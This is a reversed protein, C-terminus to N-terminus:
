QLSAIARERDPEIHFLQDLGTIHIAEAVMADLSCLCLSRESDACRKKIRILMGLGASAVFDVLHFDLVIHKVDVGTVKDLIEKQLRQLNGDDLIRPQEIIVVGVGDQEVYSIMNM